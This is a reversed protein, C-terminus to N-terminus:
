GPSSRGTSPIRSPSTTRILGWPQLLGKCQRSQSSLLFTHANLSKQAAELLEAAICCFSTAETTMREPSAQTQMQARRQSGTEAGPPCLGESRGWPASRTSGPRRMEGLLWLILERLAAQEILECGAAVSTRCPWVQGSRFM